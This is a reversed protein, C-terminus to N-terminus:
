IGVRLKRKHHIKMRLVFRFNPTHNAIQSTIKLSDTYVRERESESVIYINFNCVVLKITTTKQQIPEKLWAALQPLCQVWLVPTWPFDASGDMVRNEALPWDEINLWLCSRAHQQHKKWLAGGENQVRNHKLFILVDLYYSRNGLNIILM